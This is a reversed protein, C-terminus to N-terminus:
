LEVYEKETPFRLNYRQGDVMVYYVSDQDRQVQHNGCHGFFDKFDGIQITEKPDSFVKLPVSGLFSSWINFTSPPGIIYDCAALTYMDEILHGTGFAVPLRPFDEKSLTDTSCILFVVKTDPFLSLGREMLAAYDSIQFFFRGGLHTAYDGRRIHVGIVVPNDRRVTEMLRQVNTRYPETPTFFARLKAAHKKMNAVDRFNFGEVFAFWTKEIAEAAKPHSDLLYLEGEHTTIIRTLRNILPLQGLKRAVRTAFVFIKYLSRRFNPTCLHRFLSRRAPYRCLPDSSTAVFFRAYEDFCPNVVTVGHEEAYAAFTAFNLMRNGLQGTKEAIIIM